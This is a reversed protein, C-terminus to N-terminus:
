KRFKILYSESFFKSVFNLEFKELFRYLLKSLWVSSFFPFNVTVPYLKIDKFNNELLIKKMEKPSIQGKHIDSIKRGLIKNRLNKPTKTIIIGIGDDALLKYIKEIVIKKDKMYEIARSSFFLDYKKDLFVGTFDGDIYENVISGFRDKAIGLMEKSIDVLSFNGKDNKDIFIKTWTGPGPGVELYNSFIIDKSHKLISRLTMEYGAKKLPTELWRKYEYEYKYKNKVVDNYFNKIDNHKM